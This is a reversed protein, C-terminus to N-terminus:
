VVQNKMSYVYIDDSLHQEVLYDGYVISRNENVFDHNTGTKESCYTWSTDLSFVIEEVEFPDFDLSEGIFKKFEYDLDEKKRHIEALESIIDLVDDFMDITKNDNRREDRDGGLGM